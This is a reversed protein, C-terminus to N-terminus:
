KAAGKKSDWYLYVDKKQSREDKAKADLKCVLTMNYYSAALQFGFKTLCRCDMAATEVETSAKPDHKSTVYDVAALGVLKEALFVPICDRDVFLAATEAFLEEVKSKSFLGYEEAQTM